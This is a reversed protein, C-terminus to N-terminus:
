IGIFKLFQPPVNQAFDSYKRRKNYGISCPRTKPIAGLIIDCNLPDEADEQQEHSPIYDRNSAKCDDSEETDDDIDNAIDLIDQLQPDFKSHAGKKKLKGIPKKNPTLFFFIGGNVQQSYKAGLHQCLEVETKM